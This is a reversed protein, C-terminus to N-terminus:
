SARFIKVFVLFFIVAIVNLVSVSKEASNYFHLSKVGIKLSKGIL